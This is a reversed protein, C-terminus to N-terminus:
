KKQRTILAFRHDLLDDMLEKVENFPLPHSPRLLAVREWGNKNTIYLLQYLATRLQDITPKLAWRPIKGLAVGDKDFNFRDHVTDLVDSRKIGNMMFPQPRDSLYVLSVGSADMFYDCQGSLRLAEGLKASVEPFRTEIIKSVGGVMATGDKKIYGSVPMVVVQVKKDPVVQFLDGYIQYM